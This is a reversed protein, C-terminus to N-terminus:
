LAYIAAQARQTLPHQLCGKCGISRSASHQLTTNPIIMVSLNPRANSAPPVYGKRGGRWGNHHLLRADDMEATELMLRIRKAADQQTARVVRCSTQSKERRVRNMTERESRGTSRRERADLRSCDDDVRGASEEKTDRTPLDPSKEGGGGDRQRGGSTVVEFCPVRPLMHTAGPM